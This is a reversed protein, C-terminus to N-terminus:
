VLARRRAAEIEAALDNAFQASDPACHHPQSVREDHKDCVDILAERLLREAEAAVTPRRYTCEIDDSFEKVHHNIFTTRNGVIGNLELAYTLLRHEDNQPSDESRYSQLVDDFRLHENM